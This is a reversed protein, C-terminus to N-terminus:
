SGVQGLALLLPESWRWLTIVICCGLLNLALARQLVVGVSAYAKAGCAQGGFSEMAMVSGFLRCFSMVCDIFYLYPSLAGVGASAM